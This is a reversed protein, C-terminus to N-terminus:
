RNKLRQALADLFDPVRLLSAALQIPLRPLRNFPIQLDLSAEIPRHWRYSLEALKERFSFQNSLVIANLSIQKMGKAAQWNQLVANVFWRPLPKKIEAVPTDNIEAGLLQNALKITSLIWNAQIQNDGLCSQWDFDARRNELAVAVDCLWLPRWIGHRLAHLCLFRLHDEECPVRIKTGNLNILQSRAFMAEVNQGDSDKLEEHLDINIPYRWANQLFERAKGTHQPQVILDIDSFPRIAPDRYLRAIAWGKVLLPEIGAARFDSFVRTLNLEDVATQLTHFQYARKLELAAPLDQLDSDAIRRWALAGAGLHLLQPTIAILEEATIALPPPPNRWALFHIAKLLDVNSRGFTVPM